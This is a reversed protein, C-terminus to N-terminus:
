SRRFTCPFSTSECTLTLAVMSDRLRLRSLIDKAKWKLKEHSAKLEFLVHALVNSKAEFVEATWFSVLHKACM